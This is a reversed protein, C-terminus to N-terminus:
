LGGGWPMQLLTHWSRGWQELIGTAALDHDRQFHAVAAAFKAGAIGDNGVAKFIDAVVKNITDRGEDGYGYGTTGTFHRLAIRNNQFANLVKEQNFLAIEELKKFQEKLKDECNAIIKEDIM